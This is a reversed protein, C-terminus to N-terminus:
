KGCTGANYKTVADTVFADIATMQATTMNLLPHTDRGTKMTSDSKSKIGNSAIAKGDPSAAFFKTIYPPTTLKTNNFTTDVPLVVNGVANSFGTAPDDSHCTYCASRCGTCTDQNETWNGTFGAPKNNNTRPTPKWDGMKMADFKTRDFCDGLKALINPPAEQGGDALEMSVWKNYTAIQDASLVNTTSGDHAGKVTIRSNQVVYGATFLQSYSAESDTPTFWAPGPGAASHCTGCTTQLFPHVSAKYFAKGAPSNTAVPSSATGTTTDTGDTTGDTTGATNGNKRVNTLSDSSGDGCAAVLAALTLVTGIVTKM